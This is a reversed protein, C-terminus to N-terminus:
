HNITVLRRDQVTKSIYSRFPGFDNCKEVGRQNLGRRLPEGPVFETFNKGFTRLHGLYWIAYFCQRFNWDGSYPARVNCVVSSLRVSPRRCIAFMLMLVRESFVQRKWTQILVTIVYKVRCKIAFLFSRLLHSLSRSSEKRRCRVRVVFYLLSTCLNRWLDVRRHHTAHFAHKGFETFYRLIVAM